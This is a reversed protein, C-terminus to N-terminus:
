DRRAGFSGHRIVRAQDLAPQRDGLESLFAHALATGHRRQWGGVIEMDPPRTPRQHSRPRRNQRRQERRIRIPLAEQAHQSDVPIGNRCAPPDVSRTPATIAELTWGVAIRSREAMNRALAINCPHRGNQPLRRVAQRCEIRGSASPANGELCNSKTKRHGCVIQIRHRDQDHPRRDLPWRLVPLFKTGFNSIQRFPKNQQPLFSKCRIERILGLRRGNREGVKPRPRDDTRIAIPQNRQRRVPAQRQTPNPNPQLRIRSRPRTRFTPHTRELDHMLRLVLRRTGHRTAVAGTRIRVTPAHDVAVLDFALGTGAPHAFLEIRDHVLLTNRSDELGPPPPLVFPFAPIARRRGFIVVAGDYRGSEGFLKRFPLREVHNRGLPKGFGAVVVARYLVPHRQPAIQERRALKEAM